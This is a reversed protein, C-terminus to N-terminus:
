GPPPRPAPRGGPGRVLVARVTRVMWRPRRFVDVATFRLVGRVGPTAMLRNFRVVDRQHAAAGGHWRRGEVEVVVGQDPFFFDVRLGGLRAQCWPDLGAEVMRLRAVTEAPSGSEGRALDLAALGRRKGRLGALVARVQRAEVAGARLASDAVVVGEDVRGEGVPARLVDAVTRAAGTVRVGRDVVVVEEESLPGRHVRLGGLPGGGGVRTVELAHRLVDFGLLAAASRHSAVVDPRRRQVAYLRMWFSVECGPEAYAGSGVRQWGRRRLVGRVTGIGVGARVMDEVFLVGGHRVGLEEWVADFATM